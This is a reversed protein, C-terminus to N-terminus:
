VSLFQRTGEHNVEFYEEQSNTHTLGAMHLILDASGVQERHDVVGALGGPLSTTEIGPVSVPKTHTLFCLQFETKLKEAM